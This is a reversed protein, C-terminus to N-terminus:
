WGLQIFDVVVEVVVVEVETQKYYTVVCVGAM